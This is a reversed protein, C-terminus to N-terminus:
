YVKITWEGDLVEERCNGLCDLLNGHEVPCLLWTGLALRQVEVHLRCVVVLLVTRYDNAAAITESRRVDCWCLNDRNVVVELQWLWLVM